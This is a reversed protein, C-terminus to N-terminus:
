PGDREGRARERTARRQESVGVAWLVVAIRDTAAKGLKDDRPRLVHRGNWLAHREEVGRRDEAGADYTGCARGRRKFRGAESM